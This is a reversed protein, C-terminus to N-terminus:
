LRKSWIFWTSRIIQKQTLSKYRTYYTTQFSIIRLYQLDSKQCPNKDFFSNNFLFLHLVKKVKKHYCTNLGPFLIKIRFM